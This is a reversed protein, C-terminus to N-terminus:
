ATKASELAVKMRAFFATKVTNLQETTLRFFHRGKIVTLATDGSGVRVTRGSGRVHVDIAGKESRVRGEMSRNLVVPASNELYDVARGSIKGSEAYKKVTRKARKGLISRKSAGTRERQALDYKAMMKKPSRVAGDNLAGGYVFVRASDNKEKTNGDKSLIGGGQPQAFGYRLVFEGGQYIVWIRARSVVDLLTGSRVGIGSALLNERLYGRIETAMGAIVENALTDMSETLMPKAQSAEAMQALKDARAQLENLRALMQQLSM